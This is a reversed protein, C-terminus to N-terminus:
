RSIDRCTHGYDEPDTYPIWGDDSLTATVTVWRRQRGVRCQIVTPHLHGFEHADRENEATRM